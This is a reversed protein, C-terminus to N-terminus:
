AQMKKKPKRKKVPQFFGGSASLGGKRFGHVGGANLLERGKGEGGGKEALSNRGKKKRKTQPTSEKKGGLKGPPL